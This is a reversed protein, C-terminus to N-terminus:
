KLTLYKQELILLENRSIPGDRPFELLSPSPKVVSGKLATSIVLSLSKRFMTFTIPHLAKKLVTSTVLFLSGRLLSLVSPLLPKLATRTELAPPWVVKLVTRERRSPM